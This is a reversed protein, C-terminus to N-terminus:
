FLDALELWRDTKSSLETEIAKLDGSWRSFDDYSGSGEAMKQQLDAKRKELTEIDKELSEYEKKENYTPKRKAAAESQTPKLQEKAPEKEKARSEKEEEALMDRYESYLGNFDKIEGRGGFIFLHQALKNLFYRDHTVIILCGKFGLLFDELTNLTLIDLDNTPEDLILFNPNKILITLLYLRRKEGGSLTSVSTYQRQPDFGFQQLLQPATVSEKENTQVIDAIDTIVEIVRKDEPLKMGSQRYYGFVVTEGTDIYGSDAEDNGTIINLFTTKGVGNDGVIGMREGKQFIYNFDDLIVQTGYKKNLHHCELIKKGLRLMGVNMEVGEEEKRGQAKDKLDYFANIRYKAKTGRAKPQRRMWDLEKKLLNRAKSVESGQQEEREAKKELYYEYNGKFRYLQGNELELIENTIRDLFYRDHTILLLSLRSRRLYDELWEIMELDLHNTPEDMLVLEPEEILIRALAVRKRQGGSLSDVPQELDTIKLRTLIQRIKHEYDWAMLTDMKAMAHSLNDASEATSHEANDIMAKEYDRIAETIANGELLVNELISKGAILEPEQMLYAVRIDKNIRVSGSDATDKGTLINFLTTKGSGNRAILAIKQGEEITLTINSFLTRVGFSKSLNEAQLYTMAM